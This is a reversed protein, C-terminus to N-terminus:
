LRCRQSSVPHAPLPTSSGGRRGVGVAPAEAGRARLESKVTIEKVVVAHSGLVPALLVHCQDQTPNFTPKAARCLLTVLKDEPLSETQQPSVM